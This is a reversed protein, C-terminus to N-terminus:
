EQKVFHPNGKYYFINGELIYQDKGIVISNGKIEYTLQETKTLLTYVCKGGDIFEITDYFGLFPFTCVWKTGILESPQIAPANSKPSSACSLLIFLSLVALLVLSLKFKM